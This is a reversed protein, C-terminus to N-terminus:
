KGEAKKIADALVSEAALDLQLARALQYNISVSYQEPHRAPPITISPGKLMDAVMLSADESLQEPTSHVAMLAGSKVLASSYGVLAVGRRYAGLILNRATSANVIKLDPLVLVVKDHRSALQLVKEIGSPDEVTIAECILKQDSCSETIQKEAQKSTPGLLITLQDRDPLTTRILALMRSLPQDLYISTVPTRYMGRLADFNRRTVLTNITPLGSDVALLAARSGVSVVLAKNNSVASLSGVSALNVRITKIDPMVRNLSIESDVVYRQHQPDSEDHLFYVTAGAVVRLPLIVCFVLGVSLCRNGTM